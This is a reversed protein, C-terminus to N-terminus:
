SYLGICQTRPCFFCFLVFFVRNTCNDLCKKWKSVQSHAKITFSVPDSWKWYLVMFPLWRKEGGWGRCSLLNEITYRIQDCQIFRIKCRNHTSPATVWLNWWVSRRSYVWLCVGEMAATNEKKVKLINIQKLQARVEWAYQMLEFWRPQNLLVQWRYGVEQQLSSFIQQLVKTNICSM